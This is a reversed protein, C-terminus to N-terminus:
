SSAHQPVCRHRRLYRLEERGRRRRRMRWSVARHDETSSHGMARRGNRKHGEVEVRKRRACTV